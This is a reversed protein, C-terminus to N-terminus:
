PFSFFKEGKKRKERWGKRHRREVDEIDGGGM